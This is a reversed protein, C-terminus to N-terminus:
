SFVIDVKKSRTKKKEIGTNIKNKTITDFFSKSENILRDEVFKTYQVDGKDAASLLGDIVSSDIEKGTVINTVPGPQFPKVNYDRLMM